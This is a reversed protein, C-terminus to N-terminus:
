EIRSHSSCQQAVVVEPLLIKPTGKLHSGGHSQANREESMKANAIPELVIRIRREVPGIASACIEM